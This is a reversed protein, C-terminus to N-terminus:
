TSLDAAEAREEDDEDEGFDGQARGTGGRPPSACGGDDGVACGEVCEDRRCATVATATPKGWVGGM